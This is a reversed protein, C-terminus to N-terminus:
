AGQSRLEDRYWALARAYRAISPSGAALALAVELMGAMAEAHRGLSHLTLAEFCRLAPDDPREALAVRLIALSEDLRGVNRLTSGYGLLFAGRDDAPGGLQWARDYFRVAEAERGESDHAYAQRVLDAIDDSM